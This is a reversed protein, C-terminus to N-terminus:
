DDCFYRDPNVIGYVEELPYSEMLWSGHLYFFDTILIVHKQLIVTITQQFIRSIIILDSKDIQLYNGPWLFKATPLIGRMFSLRTRM